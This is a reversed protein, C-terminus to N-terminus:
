PGSPAIVFSALLGIETGIRAKIKRAIPSQSIFVPIVSDGTTNVINEVYATMPDARRLYFVGDIQM